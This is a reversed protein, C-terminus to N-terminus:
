QRGAEIIFSPALQAVFESNPLSRYISRVRRPDLKSAANGGGHENPLHLKSVAFNIASHDESDILIQPLKYDPFALYIKKVILGADSFLQHYEALDYTKAMLSRGTRAIYEAEAEPSRLYAFDVEGTHDDIEGLLYKLGVRNEIAVVLKGSPTLLERIRSLALIQAERITKGERCGLWELVGTMLAFDYSGPLFEVDFIDGCIPLVNALQEAQCIAALVRIREPDPELSVVQPVLKALARTLQGWGGGIDLARQVSSLDFLDLFLSRAQSFVIQELWPNRSVVEAVVREWPEGGHIRQSAASMVSDELDRFTVAAAGSLTISGDISRVATAAQAPSLFSSLDSLRGTTM